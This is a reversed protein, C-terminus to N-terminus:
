REAREMSGTTFSKEVPRIGDAKWGEKKRIHIYIRTHSVFSLSISSFTVYSFFLLFSCLKRFKNKRSLFFFNKFTALIM